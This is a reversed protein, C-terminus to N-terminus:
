KGGDRVRELAEVRQRVEAAQTQMESQRDGITRIDRQMTETLKNTSEVTVSVRGLTTQVTNLSSVVWVAIALTAGVVITAIHRNLSPEPMPDRQVLKLAAALEAFSTQAPAAPM